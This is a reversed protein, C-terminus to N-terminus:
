IFPSYAGYQENSENDEVYLIECHYQPFSLARLFGYISERAAGLFRLAESKIDVESFFGWQLTIVGFLYEQLKPFV